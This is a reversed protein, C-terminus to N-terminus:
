IEEQSVLEDDDPIRAQFTQSHLTNNHSAFNGDRTIQM